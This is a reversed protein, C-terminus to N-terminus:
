LVRRNRLRDAVARWRRQRHRYFWQAFLWVPLTLWGAEVVIQDSYRTRGGAAPRVRVLHDWRRILPDRERSQIERARPDVRELVITRTGLPILGFLYSRCRVTAGHDWRDPFRPGDVPAIAVLPRIVELLLSPRRVEAWVADAPCPLISEVYVNM